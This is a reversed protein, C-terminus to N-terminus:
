NRDRWLWQTECFRRFRKMLELQRSNSLQPEDEAARVLDIFQSHEMIERETVKCIPPVPLAFSNTLMGWRQELIENQIDM